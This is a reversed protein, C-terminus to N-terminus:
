ARKELITQHHTFLNRPRLNLKERIRKIEPCFVTLAFLHLTGKNTSEHSYLDVGTIKVIIEKGEYEAIVREACVMDIRDVESPMVCSVHSGLLM